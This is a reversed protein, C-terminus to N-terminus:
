QLVVGCVCIYMCVSVCRGLCMCLIYTHITHIPTHRAAINCHPSGILYQFINLHAEGSQNTVSPHAYLVVSVCGM